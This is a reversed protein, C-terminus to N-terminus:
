EVVFERSGALKVAVHGPYAARAQAYHAYRIPVVEDELISQHNIVATSMGVLKVLVTDSAAPAPTTPKPASKKPPPAQAKTAPPEPAPTEEVPPTPAPKQPAPAELAATKVEPTPPTTVATAEAEAAEPRVEAEADPATKATRSSRAM